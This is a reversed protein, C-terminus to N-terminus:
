TITPVGTPQFTIDAKYGEEQAAVRGIKVVHAAFTITEVGDPDEVTMNVTADSNFGAIIATHTAADADWLLTTTFENVQRKGTAIQEAYGSTSDHATVDALIKEFEPMDSELIHAIVTQVGAVAIKVKLGYGGQTGM